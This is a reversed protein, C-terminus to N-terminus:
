PELNSTQRARVGLGPGAPDVAPLLREFIPQLGMRALAGFGLGAVLGTLVPRMGDRLIM